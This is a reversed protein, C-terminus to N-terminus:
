NNKPSNGINQSIDVGQNLGLKNDENDNQIEPGLNPSNGSDSDSNDPYIETDVSSQILGTRYLNWNAQAQNAQAGAIDVIITDGCM